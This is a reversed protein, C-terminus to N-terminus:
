MILNLKYDRVFPLVDFEEYDDSNFWRLKQISLKGNSLICVMNSAM